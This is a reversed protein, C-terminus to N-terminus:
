RHSGVSLWPQLRREASTSGTDDGISLVVTVPNTLGTLNVGVGEAMMAFSNQRLPVIQAEMRVGSTVGHFVFRGNHNQKFSGAPITVSFNGIQLIVNETLPNIGNTSRGLIFFENLEFGPPRCIRIALKASSTAFPVLSTIKAVFADYAGQLADNPPPLSNVIPFDSSEADGTVYANGSTDVAIGRAAGGGLHISYALSLTSRANNFSLKSVSAGGNWAVYANDSEDVAIAYGEGGSLFTSYVLSLTSTLSNFSLKSVYVDRDPQFAIPLAHVIPFDPSFTTGSVYANGRGDVAIAGGGDFGTGGLYTSYALSLTNTASNFSLKSVYSDFDGHSANNPAPLPNVTPFNPSFTTGTVYANGSADVAIGSGGDADASPTDRGGLHTSYALSLTNRTSNFSLKTVFVGASTSSSLPNVMPFDSSFTVGTVYADGNTDVAIAASYEASSGGLYTSYALSLTNTASNFSLKSVFVDEGGQVPQLVSNPAPLPDIAPFDVSETSGTVYANGSADVAIAFGRDAGSGGLVTSYSLVPDIILSKAVDYSGVAIGVQKGAKLVYRAEVWSKGAAMQYAVPRHFRVEGALCDLKLDGSERDIWIRRADPFKLQIPNLDAGPAVVFDYELQQHNGYYVLDVGPYVAQYRVRAFNPVKNQWKEPDNGIFYYSKASLEDLGRIEPSPNAGALEMRMTQPQDKGSILVAESSTLFLMYGPGRSLFRVRSDTQGTNAEFSLPLHGYAEVVRQRPLGSGATDASKMAFRELNFNFFSETGTTTDASAHSLFPPSKWLPKGHTITPRESSVATQPQVQSTATSLMLGAALFVTSVLMKM